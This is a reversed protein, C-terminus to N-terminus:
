QPVPVSTWQTSVNHNERVSLDLWHQGPCGIRWPKARKRRTRPLNQSGVWAVPSAICMHTLEQLFLPNFSTHLIFFSLTWVTFTEKDLVVGSNQHETSKKEISVGLLYFTLMSPQCILQPLVAASETNIAFWEPRNCNYRHIRYQNWSCPSGRIWARPGGWVRPGGSLTLRGGGM